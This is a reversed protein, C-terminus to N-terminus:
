FKYSVGLLAGDFGVEGRVDFHESLLMQAGLGFGFIVRDLPTTDISAAVNGAVQIINKTVAVYPYGNFFNALKFMYRTKFTIPVAQIKFFDENNENVNFTYFGIGFELAMQAKKKEKIWFSTDFYYSYSIGWGQSTKKATDNETDRAISELDFHRYWLTGAYVHHDSVLKEEIVDPQIKPEPEYREGILEPTWPIQDDPNFFAEDAPNSPLRDTEALQDPLAPINGMPVGFLINYQRGQLPLEQHYREVIYVATEDNTTHIVRAAVLKRSGRRFLVPDKIKIGDKKGIDILLTRGSSSIESIYVDRRKANAELAFSLLFLAILCRFM